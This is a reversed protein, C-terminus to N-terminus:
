GDLIISIQLTEKKKTIVITKTKKVNMKMGLEKGAENVKDLLTQLEPESEAMLGTDDAYRLNSIRRGGVSVGKDESEITRFIIETFLNFLCPSM